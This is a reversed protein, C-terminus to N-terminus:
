FTGNVYRRCNLNIEAYRHKIQIESQRLDVSGEFEGFVTRAHREISLPSLNAFPDDPALSEEVFAVWEEVEPSRDHATRFDTWVQRLYQEQAENM